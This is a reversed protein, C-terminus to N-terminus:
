NTGTHTSANTNTIKCTQANTQAYADVRRSPGPKFDAARHYFTKGYKLLTIRTASYEHSAHEGRCTREAADILDMSCKGMTLGAHLIFKQEMASSVLDLIEVTLKLSSSGSWPCGRSSDVGAVYFRIKRRNSHGPVTNIHIKGNTGSCPTYVAFNGRTGAENLTVEVYLNPFNRESEKMRVLMSLKEHDLYFSELLPRLDTLISFSRDENEQVDIVNEPTLPEEKCTGYETDGSQYGELASRIAENVAVPTTKVETLRERHEDPGYRLPKPEFKVLCKRDHGWNFYFAGLIMGDEQRGDFLYSRMQLDYDQHVGRTNFGCIVETAPGFAVNPLALALERKIKPFAEMCPNLEHPAAEGSYHPVSRHSEKRDGRDREKRDGRDRVKRDGKSDGLDARHGTTRANRLHAYCSQTLIYLLIYFLKYLAVVSICKIFKSIRNFLHSYACHKFDFM